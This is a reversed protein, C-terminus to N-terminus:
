NPPGLRVIERGRTLTLSHTGIDAVTWDGHIKEGQKVRQMLGGPFALMAVLRGDMGEISRVVPLGIDHGGATAQRAMGGGAYGAGGASSKGIEAQKNAIQARLELEAKQATLIAISENIKAIKEAASEAGAPAAALVTALLLWRLPREIKYM